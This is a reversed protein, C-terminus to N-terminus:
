SFPGVQFARYIYALRRPRDAIRNKTFTAIARVAVDDRRRDRSSRIHRRLAKIDSSVSESIALGLWPGGM